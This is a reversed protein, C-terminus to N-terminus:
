ISVMPRSRAALDLDAVLKRYMSAFILRSRRVNDFVMLWEDGTLKSIANENPDRRQRKSPPSNAITADSRTPRLPSTTTSASM